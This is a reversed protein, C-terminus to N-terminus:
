LASRRDLETLNIEVTAAGIAAGSDPDDITLNLQARWTGSGEHWEADDVFVASPGVGVTKQFKAEDGQWMDSTISSQGANLGKNGVVIIEVILGGSHAQIRTLYNSLPNSLTSAILPKVDADRQERWITDLGEVEAQTLSQRAENSGRLTMIVIPATMYERIQRVVKSDILQNSLPVQAHTGPPALIAIAATALALVARRGRRM